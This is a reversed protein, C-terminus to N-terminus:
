CLTSPRARRAVAPSRAARRVTLAERRAWAKVRQSEKGQQVAKVADKYKIAGKFNGDADVVPLGKKKIREMLALADEMTDDLEVTSVTTTMVDEATVQEPIQALVADTAERLRVQLDYSSAPPSLRATHSAPSTPPTTRRPNRGPRPPTVEAELRAAARLAEESLEHEEGEGKWGPFHEGEVTLRVSAAAAAPHGGGGFSSMLTNLDVTVARSGCRGILNLFAHGKANFHVVGLLVVDSSGLEMLEEAVRAMGTIFGRGTDVTVVSVKLGHHETVVSASLAQTLVDRQAQALRAHGFESIAQQSTGQTMLWVLAAGDRPTTSPFALAGTDARIGLALLTAEAESLAAAPVDSLGQLLEVLVTTSSGVAEVVLEDPQIDNENQSHHDYVAVHTAHELWAAGPGLRDRTQADVVGVARVDSPAITNFGRIPLLHKHYALFRAVLPNAGRPLVVHTPLEPRQVSWLKALAVASALSDFDCNTHTLVVNCPEELVDGATFQGTQAVLHARRRPPRLYHPVIQPRLLAFLAAAWFMASATLVTLDVLRTQHSSYSACALM